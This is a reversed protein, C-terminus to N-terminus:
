SIVILMNILGWLIDTLYIGEWGETLVSEQQFESWICKNPIERFVLFYFHFM